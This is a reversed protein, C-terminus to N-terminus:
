IKPSKSIFNSSIKGPCIYLKFKLEGQKAKIFYKKNKNEKMLLIEYSKENYILYGTLVSNSVKKKDFYDFLSM